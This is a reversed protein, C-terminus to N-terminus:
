QTGAKQMARAYALQRSRVWSRVAADPPMPDVHRTPPWTGFKKRYSHGIWGSTYGREKAIAALQRHWRHKAIDDYLPARAERSREVEGLEGDAVDVAKPKSQPRWGCAGCPKGQWRVAHCEPCTTLTRARGERRAQQKPREARRDERLTWIVPEDPLGHEFVAGAHDLILADAKGPAPRLVRGIMQRFLGFSRTPRALVLCSAAPSDWGETLIACNVVVDVSGAALRALIADREDAPTSGDLHEALVDSRRFEDRLHVSHAVSTAFVVTRRREALRHWHSVIDGTLKARDMREALQAEVYDGREIRVGALDPRFPAFVRAPVLYGAQTLAAVDPCEVLVDFASGLGRGDGRCPTATLGIVVANGYLELIRRYTKARVHHAEDVVVLDAPPPAMVSSRVARAHLTAVSAVQVPEGPRTRFGAQVIGHDVGAHHLKRSTQAILERRHALVLVRQGRAVHTRILDAALVTKGSGTPAVVLLCRRGVRIEAEVRDAVDRQYPRLAPTRDAAADASPQHVPLTPTSREPVKCEVGAGTQLQRQAPAKENSM